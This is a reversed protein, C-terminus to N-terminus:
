ASVVKVAPLDQRDQVAAANMSGACVPLGADRLAAVIMAILDPHLYRNQLDRVARRGYDPDLHQLKRLASEAEVTRGLRVSCIAVLVHTYIVGPMDVKWAESLAEDFRGEAFHWLSLGVRYTGALAPNRCYAENILAVGRDWKGQFALRFGLEATIEMDNPNLAHSKEYAEMASSVQGSFWYATALALHGRSSSPSLQIARQALTLARRLPNVSTADGMYGFRIGGTYMQSLCAFAEANDPDSLIARELGQRVSEFEERNFSRCYNHFRLVSEFSASGQLPGNYGKRALYSFIVGTPQAINRVIHDAVQARLCPLAATSLDRDIYETWIYHRTRADILLAEVYLRGDAIAAAGTLIFDVDHAPSDEPGAPDASANTWNLPNDGIVTLDSFRALSVIVHRSIGRAINSDATSCEEGEFGSVQVVPRRVPAVAFDLSGVAALGDAEVDVTRAFSPAYSGIPIEIRIQDERGSTLYYHELARRLRGAEIRVIADEQPDFSEDRGFVSTAVTYAKIRDARGQLSEEVVYTLFRKNRESADLDESALIRSLQARVADPDILSM